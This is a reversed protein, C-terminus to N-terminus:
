ARVRELAPTEVPARAIVSWGGAPDPGAQMTGGVAEIRERMGVLGLGGERAPADAGAGDDAIRVVAEGGEIQLAVKIRGPQGHRVANSLGEQVVRYLIERLPESLAGDDTLAVKFDIDPRRARWFRVLEGVAADLGLEVLLAPRLRALIDRVLRQLHGVAGQIARVREAAEGVRGASIAQDLVAADINVAFLHPGIEDHLDRALDAREEDQLTLIQEELARTRRRM